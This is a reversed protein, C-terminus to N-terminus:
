QNFDFHFIMILEEGGIFSSCESGTRTHFSGSYFTGLPFNDLQYTHAHTNCVMHMGALPRDIRIHGDISNVCSCWIRLLSRNETRSSGIAVSPSNEVFWNIDNDTHRTSPKWGWQTEARQKGTAYIHAMTWRRQQAAFLAADLAFFHCAMRSPLRVFFFCPM